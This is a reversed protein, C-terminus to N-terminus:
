LRNITCQTPTYMAKIKNRLCAHIKPTSFSDFHVLLKVVGCMIVARKITGSTMDNYRVTSYHGDTKLQATCWKYAADRSLHTVLDPIMFTGNPFQMHAFTKNVDISAGDPLDVIDHRTVFQNGDHTHQLTCEHKDFCASCVSQGCGVCVKCTSRYLKAATNYTLKSSEIHLHARKYPSISTPPSRSQLKPVDFATALQKIVVEPSAHVDYGKSSAWDMIDKFWNQEWKVLKRHCAFYLHSLMLRAIGDLIPQDMSDDRCTIRVAKDCSFCPTAHMTKCIACYYTFASRAVHQTLQMQLPMMLPRLHEGTYCSVSQMMNALVPLSAGRMSQMAYHKTFTQEVDDPKTKANFELYMLKSCTADSTTIAYRVIHPQQFASIITKMIQADTVNSAVFTILFKRRSSM